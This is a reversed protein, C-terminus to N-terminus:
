VSITFRALKITSVRLARLFNDESLITRSQRGAPHGNYDSMKLVPTSEASGDCAEFFVDPVGRRFAPM